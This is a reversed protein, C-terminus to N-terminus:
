GMYDAGCVDINTGSVYGDLVLAYFLAVRAVDSPTGVRGLPNRVAHEKEVEPLTYKNHFNGKIFGPTITNFRIGRGGLENALCKSWSLLAGKAMGYASSRDGKGSRATLSSITIISANKSLHPLSAKTFLFASKVNVDFSNQMLEWDMKVFLKREILDGANNILVDIKQKKLIEKINKFERDVEMKSTADCNIHIINKNKYKKIFRDVKQYNKYSHLILNAGNQLFLEACAMGIDGSAGTILALKGILNNNM